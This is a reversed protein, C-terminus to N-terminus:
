VLLMLRDLGVAVGSCDPMGTELAALFDVDLNCVPKGLSQRRENDIKFRQALEVPDTLEHYGNALEVGNVYLEFRKAVEYGDKDKSLKAMAAQSKPYDYIFTLRNVGLKPEVLHTLLLDLWIDRDGDFSVDIHKKAQNKLEVITATFPDIGAYQIFAERYSIKEVPLPGIIKELLNTLDDILEEIGGGVRYWELLTFEVSHLRGPADQRFAKALQYISGSGLVLLKKMAVEPSTQLYLWDTANTINLPFPNEVRLNDLQPDTVPYRGLLPTEVELVQKEVFFQRILSLVRARKELQKYATVSTLGAPDSGTQAIM